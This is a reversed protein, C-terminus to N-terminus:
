SEWPPFLVGCPWFFRFTSEGYQAKGIAGHELSTDLLQKQRRYLDQKKEDTTLPQQNSADM